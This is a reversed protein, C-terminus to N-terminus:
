PTVSAVAQAIQKAPDDFGSISVPVYRAPRASAGNGRVFFTPTARVDLQRALADTEAELRRAALTPRAEIGVGDMEPAADAFRQLGAATIWQRREDGQNYYTLEALNWARGATALNYVASRGTLNDPRFAPLGILRLELNAKGSRVLEDVVTPLKGLAFARCASCKLDAFAIVTVPADTPGLVLGRQPVRRLLAEVEKVGRVGDVQSADRAPDGGGLVGGAILGGIAVVVVLFAVGLLQARRAVPAAPQPGEAM